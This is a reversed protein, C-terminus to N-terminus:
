PADSIALRYKQFRNMIIKIAFPLTLLLVFSIIVNPTLISRVSLSEVKSLQAGANIFVFSVPLMGLQSIVHFNLVKIRTIGFVLNIAFFPIIPILRLSFLYMLGQDEMGDNVKKVLKKFKKEVSDRLLTRAILMAVTAAISSAFSVLLMGWWLGFVIGAGLTLVAAGPINLAGVLIYLSFFIFATLLPQQDVRSKLDSVDMYQGLNFWFFNFVLAAVIVVIFIKKFNM